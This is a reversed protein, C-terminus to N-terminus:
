RPINVNDIKTWLQGGAQGQNPLRNVSPAGSTYTFMGIGAVASDGKAKDHDLGFNTPGQIHPPYYGWLFVAIKKQSATGESQRVRKAQNIYDSIINRNRGMGPVDTYPDSCLIDMAGICDEFQFAYDLNVMIPRQTKACNTYYRDYLAYLTRGSPHMPEDDTWWILVRSDNGHESTFYSEMNNGFAAAVAKVLRGDDTNVTLYQLKDSDSMAIAHFNRTRTGQGPMTKSKSQYNGWTTGDEWVDSIDLASENSMDFYLPNPWGNQWGTTDGSITYIPQRVVIVRNIRDTSELTVCGIQGLTAYCNAGEWTSPDTTQFSTEAKYGTTTSNSHGGVNITLYGQQYNGLNARDGCLFARHTPTTNVFSANRYNPHVVPLMLRTKDFAYYNPVNRSFRVWVVGEPQKTFDDAGDDGIRFLEFYCVTGSATQATVSTFDEAFYANDSGSALNGKCRIILPDNDNDSRYFKLGARDAGHDTQLKVYITGADKPVFVYQRVPANEGTELGCHAANGLINFTAFTETSEVCYFQAGTIEITYPTMPKYCIVKIRYLGNPHANLNLTYLDGAGGSEGNGSGEHAKQVETGKLNGIHYAYVDVRGEYTSKRQVKVTANGNKFLLFWRETGIHWTKFDKTTFNPDNSAKGVMFTQTSDYALLQDAM